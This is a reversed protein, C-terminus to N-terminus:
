KLLLIKAKIYLGLLIIQAMFKQSMIYIYFTKKILYQFYIHLLLNLRCFKRNQKLCFYEIIVRTVILHYIKIIKFFKQEM